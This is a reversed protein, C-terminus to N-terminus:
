GRGGLQLTPRVNWFPRHLMCRTCAPAGAFAPPYVGCTVARVHVLVVTGSVCRVSVRRRWNARGDSSSPTVPGDGATLLAGATSCRSPRRGAGSGAMVATTATAAAAAAVLVAVASAPAAEGRVLAGPATAAAETGGTAPGDDPGRMEVWAGGVAEVPMIPSTAWALGRAAPEPESEPGLLAHSSGAPSAGSPAPPAAGEWGADGVDEPAVYASPRRDPGRTQRCSLLLKTSGFAAFGAGAVARIVATDTYLLLWLGVFGFLVVPVTVVLAWALAPRVEKRAYWMMAPLSALPMFNMYVQLRDLRPCPALFCPSPGRPTSAILPRPQLRPTPSPPLLSALLLSSIGAAVFHKRVVARALSDPDDDDFIGLRGCVLYMLLFIIADGAVHPSPFRLFKLSSLSRCLM